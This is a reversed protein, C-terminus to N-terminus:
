VFTINRACAPLKTRQLPAFLGPSSHTLFVGGAQRAPVADTVQRFLHRVLAHEDSEERERGVYILRANGDAAAVLAEIRASLKEIQPRTVV